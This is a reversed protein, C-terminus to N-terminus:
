FKVNILTLSLGYDAENDEGINKIGGFGGVNFEILNLIPVTVNYDKLKAVEYSVVAIVENDVPVIGGELSVGKKRILDTTSCYKFNDSDFSYVVGQKLDPIKQIEDGIDISASYCPCYLFLSTLITIFLIKFYKM